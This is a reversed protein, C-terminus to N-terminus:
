RMEREVVELLEANLPPTATSLLWRELARDRDMACVIASGKSMEVIGAQVQVLETKSEL